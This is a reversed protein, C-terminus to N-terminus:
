GSPFRSTTTRKSFGPVTARVAMGDQLFALEDEYIQAQIWVTSLDAIDYLAAGEEVYKGEVQYKRIFM